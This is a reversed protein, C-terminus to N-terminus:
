FGPDTLAYKPPPGEPFERGSALVRVAPLLGVPILVVDLALLRALNLLTSLQLDVIGKEIRSLHSQTMGARAALERQSLGKAKRASLLQEVYPM